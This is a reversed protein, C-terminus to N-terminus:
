VKWGRRRAQRTERARQRWRRKLERHERSGRRRTVAALERQLKLYSKWREPDLDGTALAERIACDPETEHACDTFRCDAALEAIDAFAADVDGEWVQLERLGPTDLLLAGSPLVLLQRHRTTHRGRGDARLDGTPMLQRGALRNALTSKGVGSSGLLAITQRPELLASVADIGEGSVNSVPLVPVGMALGEAEVPKSADDLLDLKTLVLVPSAGSDWAATLYREIRRPNFDGDLGSVLFVTDVNAALVHEEVKLWPTKRSIKTRRPLVAEIAYREGSADCVAVWDGVAPMGAFIEEDRLRGRPHALREDRESRVLYGGRHEAVVRAPEFGREEYQVFAAELEDTWGLDALPRVSM